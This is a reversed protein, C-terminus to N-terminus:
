RSGNKVVAEERVGGRFEMGRAVRQELRVERRSM